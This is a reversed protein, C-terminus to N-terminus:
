ASKLAAARVQLKLKEWSLDETRRTHPHAPGLVM